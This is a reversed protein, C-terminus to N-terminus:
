PSRRGFCALLGATHPIWSGIDCFVQLPPKQKLFVLDGATPGTFGGLNVCPLVRGADAIKTVSVFTRVGTPIDDADDKGDYYGRYLGLKWKM